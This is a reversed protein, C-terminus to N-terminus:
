IAHYDETLARVATVDFWPYYQVSNIVHYDHLYSEDKECAVFAM